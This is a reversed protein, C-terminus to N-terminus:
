REACIEENMKMCSSISRSSRNPLRSETVYRILQYATNRLSIGCRVKDERLFYDQILEYGEPFDAKLLELAEPLYDLRNRHRIQEQEEEESIPISAPDPNAALVDDFDPYIMGNEADREELYREKRLLKNYEREINRPVDDDFHVYMFRGM